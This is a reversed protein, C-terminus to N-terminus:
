FRVSDRYITEYDDASNHFPILRDIDWQEIKM